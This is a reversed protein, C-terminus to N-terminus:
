FTFAFCFSVGDFSPIESQLQQCQRFAALYCPAVDRVSYGRSYGYNLAYINYANFEAQGDWYLLVLLISVTETAVIGVVVPAGVPAGSKVGGAVVVV